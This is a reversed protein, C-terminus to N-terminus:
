NSSESIERQLSALDNALSQMSENLSNDVTNKTLTSGSFLLAILILNQM